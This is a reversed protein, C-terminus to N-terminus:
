FHLLPLPCLYDSQTKFPFLASCVKYIVDIFTQADDGHLERILKVEDKSTFIAEILPITQHPSTAHGILHKCAPVDLNTPNSVPNTNNPSHNLSLNPSPNPSDTALDAILPLDGDHADPPPLPYGLLPLLAGIICCRYYVEEM